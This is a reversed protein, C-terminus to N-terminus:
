ILNKVTTLRALALAGVAMVTDRIAIDLYIQGMSLFNVTIILLWIAGLYGGIRTFGLLILTGIIIEIIGVGFNVQKVNLQFIYLVEPSVFKEWNTILNFYKDIGALLFLLGYTIKLLFWTNYVNKGILYSSM